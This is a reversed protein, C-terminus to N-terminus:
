RLLIKQISRSFDDYEQVPFGFGAKVWKVVFESEELYDANAARNLPKLSELVLETRCSFTMPFTKCIQRDCSLYPYLFAVTAEYNQAWWLCSM